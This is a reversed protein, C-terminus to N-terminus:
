GENVQAPVDEAADAAVQKRSRRRGARVREELHRTVRSLPLTIVLYFVAAVIYPTISGTAAVVTKAYMILEMVGVAALLSTDKYLMIFENPLNPIIRRFMQPIIVSVMTQTGSMGLSRAAEFQGKDISQIGARMIECMYAASNLCMVAFGLVFSPINIGALPLGFFAIYIQLFLPTGRVINVYTTAIGRLVRLRSIRMLALALGLPLALPFACAVVLLSMGFGQLVVPFSTVLIIPNLFLRLFKNSNWAQVWAQEELQQSLNETFSIGTVSIAPIGEMEHEAGGATTYSGEIQMDGGSAPFLVDYVILSLKGAQNVPEGFTVELTQGDATVEMGDDVAVRTMYNDGTLLTAKFDETSFSTGEPFTFSVSEIGEGEEVIGEWTVRTQTGGLVDSSDDGANPRATTRDVTLAEATVPAATLGALAIMVAALTGALLKPLFTRIKM